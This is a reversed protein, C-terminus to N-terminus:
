ETEHWQEVSSSEATFTVKLADDYLYDLNGDVAAQSRLTWWIGDGAALTINELAALEGTTLAHLVKTNSVDAQTGSVLMTYTTGSKKGIAWDIANLAANNRQFSVSGTVTATGAEPAVWVVRGVKGWNTGTTDSIILYNQVIRPQGGETAEWRSGNWNAFNATAALAYWPNAQGLGNDAATATVWEYQWCNGAVNAEGDSGSIADTTGTNWKAGRLYEVPDAAYSWQSAMFLLGLIAWLSRSSQQHRM